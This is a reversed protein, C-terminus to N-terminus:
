KIIGEPFVDELIHSGWTTPISRIIGGMVIPLTNVENVKTSHLAIGNYTDHDYYYLKNATWNASTDFTIVDYDENTTDIGIITNGSQIQSGITFTHDKYFKVISGVVTEYCTGIIAIRNIQGAEVNVATGEPVFGNYPLDCAIEYDRAVNPADIVLPTVGTYEKNEM